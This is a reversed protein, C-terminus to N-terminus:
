RSAKPIYKPLPTVGSRKLMKRIAQDSVKLERAYASYGMTEIKNIVEDVSTWEIKHRVKDAAVCSNCREHGKSVPGACSICTQWTGDVSHVCYAQYSGIMKRGCVCTTTVKNHGKSFTETQAHCNPCLFRLNGLQNDFHNGNIHDVQFTIKKGLWESNTHLPCEKVSCLFPIGLKILRDRLSSGSRRTNASFFINDPIRPRSSRVKSPANYGSPLIIDYQQAKHKITKFNGGSPKLGLNTLVDSVSTAGELASELNEKTWKIRVM